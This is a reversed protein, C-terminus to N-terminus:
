AGEYLSRNSGDRDITSLRMYSTGRTAGDFWQRMSAQSNTASHRNSDQVLSLSTHNRQRYPDDEPGSARQVLKFLHDAEWQEQKDIGRGSLRRVFAPTYDVTISISIIVVGVAFIIALGLISFSQYGGPNHFKHIYCQEEWDDNIHPELVMDPDVNLM